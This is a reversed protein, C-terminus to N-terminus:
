TNINENQLEEVKEPFIYHYVNHFILFMSAHLIKIHVCFDKVVKESVLHDWMLIFYIKVWLSLM